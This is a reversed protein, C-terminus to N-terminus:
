HLLQQAKWGWWRVGAVCRPAHERWLARGLGSAGPAAAGSFSLLTTWREMLALSVGPLALRGLRALLASSTLSCHATRSGRATPVSCLLTGVRTANLPTSDPLAAPARLQLRAV